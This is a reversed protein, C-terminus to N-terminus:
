RNSAVLANARASNRAAERKTKRAKIFARRKRQRAEYAAVSKRRREAGVKIVRQRDAAAARRREVRWLGMVKRRYSRNLRRTASHYYGVALTWSHHAIYLKKLHTAAYAVNTEPNFAEALNAFAGPHYALNVQMCGVDINRINQARMEKVKAIAAERTPLYHSNNGSTVTWPWAFSAKRLRDYRGSEALSIARLIQGPINYKQEARDVARMCLNKNNEIPQLTNEASSGVANSALGLAFILAVGALLRRCNLSIPTPLNAKMANEICDRLWFPWTINNSL